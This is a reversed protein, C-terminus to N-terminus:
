GNQWVAFWDPHQHICTARITAQISSSCLHIIFCCCRAFSTGSLNWAATLAIPLADAITLADLIGTYFPFVCHAAKSHKFAHFLAAHDNLRM